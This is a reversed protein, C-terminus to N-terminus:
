PHYPMTRSSVVGSLRALHCSLKNEFEGGQDHHIRAPFGFRPIFENFLKDAATCATKNRTAYAQAYRTFHYVILLVHEDEGKSKDVHLFDLSILECPASTSISSMPTRTVTNPKRQKVCRCRYKVFNAIDQYMHPWYFHTRVLGVVRNM